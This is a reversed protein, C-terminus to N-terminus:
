PNNRLQYFRKDSNPANSDTLGYINNTLRAASGIALWNSAPVTINSTTFVTFTVASLNTFTIQLAGNTLVTPPNIVPPPFAIAGAAYRIGGLLHARFLPEDFSSTTHGGATYWARGGDYEHYWAIPHDAGMNGGTYTSEDLTALVRISPDNTRPNLNFNYWEDTRLWASPLAVTSPHSPDEILATAGQIAPHDTFYAGVLGGYWPWGHETDTASHIGVFGNGAEIFRQFAAEQDTDLVDGTTNLFVVVQFPALGADSFQAADETATVEFNNTAAMQQIAAIGNSISSHRFGATKSFVLVRNAAYSTHMAELFGAGIFCLVAKIFATFCGGFVVKRFRTLPSRETKPTSPDM